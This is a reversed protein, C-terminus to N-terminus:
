TDFELRRTFREFLSFLFGGVRLIDRKEGASM